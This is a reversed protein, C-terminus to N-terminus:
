RKRKYDVAFSEKPLIIFDNVTFTEYIQGLNFGERSLVCKSKIPNECDSVRIFLSHRNEHKWIEGKKPLM